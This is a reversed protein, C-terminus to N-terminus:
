DWNNKLQTWLVHSLSFPPHKENLGKKKRLLKLKQSEEVLFISKIKPLSM